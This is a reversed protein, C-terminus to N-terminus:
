VTPTPTQEESPTTDAAPLPNVMPDVPPQPIESAPAAPAPEDPAIPLPPLSNIAEDVKSVDAQPVDESVPASDTSAITSEDPGNIPPLPQEDVIPASPEPVFPAPEPAVEVAPISPTDDGFSTAPASFDTAVPDSPAVPTPDPTSAPPTPVPADQKKSGGFLKAWFSQKQEPQPNQTNSDM